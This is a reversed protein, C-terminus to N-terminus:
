NAQAANHAVVERYAGALMPAVMHASDRSYGVKTLGRGKLIVVAHLGDYKRDQIFAWLEAELEAAEAQTLMAMEAAM